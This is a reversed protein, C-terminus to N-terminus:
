GVASRPRRAGLKRWLTTPSIGLVMAARARNGGAHELVAKIYESEVEALSKVAGKAEAVLGPPRPQTVASPLHAPRIVGSTSLVAAHEIANELERVNGPWGYGELLAMCSPDLKLDFIKLRVKTRQVFHRALHVIDDQRERLSPVRIEMVALRYYLDERFAGDAIARKVDRNTAALVRTDVKRPQNEGLRLVEREQLV